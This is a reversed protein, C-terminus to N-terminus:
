NKLDERKNKSIGVMSGLVSVVLLILYYIITRINFKGKFILNLIIFIILILAWFKIGSLWGKKETNRGLFLSGIFLSLVPILFKLITLVM